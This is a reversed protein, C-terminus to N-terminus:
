EDTCPATPFLLDYLRQAQAPTLSKWPEPLWMADGDMARILMNHVEEPSRSQPPAPWKHGQAFFMALGVGDSTSRPLAMALLDPFFEPLLSKRLAPIKGKDRIPLNEWTWKDPADVCDGQTEEERAGAEGNQENDAAQEALSRVAEDDDPHVPIAPPLEGLVGNPFLRELVAPNAKKLANALTTRTVGLMTALEQQSSVPQPHHHRRWLYVWFLVHGVDPRFKLLYWPVFLTGYRQDIAREIQEAVDRMEASPAVGDEVLHEYLPLGRQDDDLKMPDIALWGKVGAPKSTMDEAIQRACALHDEANTVSLGLLRADAPTVWPTIPLRVLTQRRPTTRIMQAFPARSFASIITPKSVGAWRAIEAVSVTFREGARGGKLYYLQHLALLLSLGSARVTPWWRMWYAPFRIVREPRVVKTVALRHYQTLVVEQEKRQQPPERRVFEIDRIGWAAIGSERLMPMKAREALFAFEDEDATLAVTLVGNDFKEVTPHTAHLRLMFGHAHGRLTEVWREIDSQFEKKTTAM